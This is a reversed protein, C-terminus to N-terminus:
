AFLWRQGFVLEYRRARKEHYWEMGSSSWIPMRRLGQQESNDRSLDTECAAPLDEVDMGHNRLARKNLTLEHYAIFIESGSLWNFLSTAKQKFVSACPNTSSRISITLACGPRRLVIETDPCRDRISLLPCPIYDSTATLFKAARAVLDDTEVLIIMSVDSTLLNQGGLLLQYVFLGTILGTVQTLMFQMSRWSLGVSNPHPPNELFNKVLMGLSTDCGIEFLEVNSLTALFLLLSAPNDKVGAIADLLRTVPDTM